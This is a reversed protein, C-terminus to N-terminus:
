PTYKSGLVHGKVSTYYLTCLLVCLRNMRAHSVHNESFRNATNIQM